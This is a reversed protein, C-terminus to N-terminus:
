LRLRSGGIDVLVGPPAINQQAVAAVSLSLFAIATVISLTLLDHLQRRMAPLWPNHYEASMPIRIDCIM